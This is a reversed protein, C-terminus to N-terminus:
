QAPDSTEDPTMKLKKMLYLLAAPDIDGSRTGMIIGELPTMGMSTDAVKGKDFATISGGNGLHCTIIRCADFPKGLLAAAKKAVYGHSTGHFGYKRVGYKKYLELPVAYMFAKPPMSQHIATDFVAVNPIDGFIKLCANIGTVNPPNHLPALEYCDEIAKIVEGDIITSATFAEGGHVVRHGVGQIESVDKVVGYDPHTIADEIAAMAAAHDPIDLDMEVKDKGDAAHCINAGPVGIKEVLGKAVMHKGNGDMDFVQYKISSSGCNIVLIKM